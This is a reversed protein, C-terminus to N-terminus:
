QHEKGCGIVTFGTYSGSGGIRDKAASTIVGRYAILKGDLGPQTGIFRADQAHDRDAVKFVAMFASHVYSPAQIAVKRAVPYRGRYHTPCVYPSGLPMRSALLHSGNRCAAQM